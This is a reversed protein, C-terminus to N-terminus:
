GAIFFFYIKRGGVKVFTQKEMKGELFPQNFATKSCRIITKAVTM